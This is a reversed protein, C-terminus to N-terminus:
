VWSFVCMSTKSTRNILSILPCKTPDHCFLCTKGDDDSADSDKGSARMYVCVCVILKKICTLLDRGSSIHARMCKHTQMHTRKRLNFKTSFSLLVYNDSTFSWSIFSHSTVFLISLCVSLCVCVCVCPFARGRGREEGCAVHGNMFENSSPTFSHTHLFHAVHIRTFQRLPGLTTTTLVCLLQRTNPFGLFKGYEVM